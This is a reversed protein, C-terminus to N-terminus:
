LILILLLVLYVAFEIHITFYFSFSLTQNLIDHFIKNNTSLNISLDLVWYMYSDELEAELQMLTLEKKAQEFEEPSLVGIKRGYKDLLKISNLGIVYTGAIIASMQAADLFAQDWVLEQLGSM